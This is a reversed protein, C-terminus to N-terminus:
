TNVQVLQLVKALTAQNAEVLCLKALSGAGNCQAGIGTLEIIGPFTIFGQVIHVEFLGTRCLHRL